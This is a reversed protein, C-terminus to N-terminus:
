NFKATPRSKEWINRAKNYESKIQEFETLENVVLNTTLPIQQHDLSHSHADIFRSLAEMREHVRLAIKEDFYVKDLTFMINERWRKVVNNFLKKQIFDEYATRISGCAKELKDRQADGSLKKAEELHKKARDFAFGEYKEHPFALVDVRGPEKSEDIWITIGTFDVGKAEAANALYNTFLIDHTFIIVQRTIAETVLRQAISEKRIHDMSTVPDDFIVGSCNGNLKIETLFDALATATQEGESLVDSTDFGDVCANTIEIQRDTTGADGAFRFQVPLELKLSECNEKFCELFGQAMLTKVLSKQKTTIERQTGSFVRLAASAKDIWKLESVATAIETYKGSLYKRDELLKQEILLSKIIDKPDKLALEENEKKIRKSLEQIQKSVSDVPVIVTPQILKIISKILEQKIIESNEVLVAINAELTADLEKLMRRAASESSFFGMNLKGLDKSLSDLRLKGDSLQAEVDNKVANYFRTLRDSAESNLEQHCLICRPNNAITPPFSDDPYVEHHYTIASTILERWALTGVPQVPENGFQAASLAASKEMLQKNKEIEESIKLVLDSRLGAITSAISTLLNELDAIKQQNYKIIQKPDTSQLENIKKNVEELRTAEVDGFVALDSLEILDTKATLSALKKAVASDSNTIAFKDHAISKSAIQDKLKKQLRGIAEVMRPFIDFLYPMVQFTNREDLHVRICSSDFVAYYDHLRSCTKQYVYVTDTDDSFVFRATPTFQKSKEIRVDGLIKTEHSRTFCAAKLVRAYGSKGSGNPGYIVNLHPGFTLNEGDVLANVGSVDKMVKLYPLSQLANDQFQPLALTYNARSGSHTSLGQDILFENFLHDINDDSLNTANVLMSLLCRQWAPLTKDWASLENFINFSPELM